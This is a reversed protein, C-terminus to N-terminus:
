QSRIRLRRLPSSRQAGPTADRVWWRYDGGPRLRDASVRMLTDSTEATFAVADARDLIEVRYQSAGALPHWIFLLPQAAPIEPPPALLQISEGGRTIDDSLTRERVAIGLGVALLLSAALAMPKWHDWLNLHQRSPREMAAGATEIARLLALERQCENCTMVHDLNELRREEPGDRRVLALLDEPSVCEGSGPALDRRALAQAYLEQLRSDTLEGGGM